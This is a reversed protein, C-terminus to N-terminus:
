RGAHRRFHGLQRPARNTGTGSDPGSTAAFGSMDGARGAPASCASCIARDVGVDEPPWREHPPARHPLNMRPAGAQVHVLVRDEGARHDVAPRRRDLPEPRRGALKMHAARHFPASGDQAYAYFEDDSDDSGGEAYIDAWNENETRFWNVEAAPRLRDIFTTTRRWGNTARLFAAYAPPLLLGLRRELDAIDDDTAPVHGLWDPSDPPPTVRAALDTKM